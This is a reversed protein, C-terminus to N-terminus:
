RNHVKMFQSRSSYTPTCMQLHRTRLWHSWHSGRGQAAPHPRQLRLFLCSRDLSRRLPCLSSYRAEPWGQTLAPAPWLKKVQQKRWNPKEKGEPHPQRLRLFARQKSWRHKSGENAAHSRAAGARYVHRRGFTQTWYRLETAGNLGSHSRGSNTAGGGPREWGGASQALLESFVKGDVCSARRRSVRRVQQLAPSGPPCTLEVAREALEQARNWAGRRGTRRNVLVRKHASAHRSHM